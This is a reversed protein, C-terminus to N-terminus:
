PRCAWCNMGLRLLTSPKFKASAGEYATLSNQLQTRQAGAPLENIITQLTEELSAVSGVGMGYNAAERFIDRIAVLAALWVCHLAILAVIVFLCLWWWAGLISTLSLVCCHAATGALGALPAAISHQEM